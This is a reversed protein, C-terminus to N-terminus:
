ETLPQIARCSWAARTRCFRTTRADWAPALDQPPARRGVPLHADAIRLIVPAVSSPEGPLARWLGDVWQAPFAPIDRSCRYAATCNGQAVACLPGRTDAPVRGERRGRSCLPHPSSAFSPCFLGRSRSATDATQCTPQGVPPEGSRRYDAKGPRAGSRPQTGHGAARLIPLASAFGM